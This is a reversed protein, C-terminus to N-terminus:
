PSEQLIKEIGVPDEFPDDLVFTHKIRINFYPRSEEDIFVKNIQKLIDLGEVV